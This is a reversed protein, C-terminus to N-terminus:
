LYQAIDPIPKARLGSPLRKFYPDPRIEHDFEEENEEDELEWNGASDEFIKPTAATDEIDDFILTLRRTRDDLAKAPNEVKGKKVLQFECPYCHKHFHDRFTKIWKDTNDTRKNLLVM